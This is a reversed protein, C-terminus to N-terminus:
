RAWTEPFKRVAGVNYDRSVRLVVKDEHQM